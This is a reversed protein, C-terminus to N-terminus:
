GPPVSTLLTRLSGSNTLRGKRMTSAHATRALQNHLSDFAAGAIGMVSQKGFVPCGVSTKTTVELYWQFHIIIPM